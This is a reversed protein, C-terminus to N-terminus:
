LYFEGMALSRDGLVMAVDEKSGSGEIVLKGLTHRLGHFALGPGAALAILAPISRNRRLHGTPTRKRNLNLSRM